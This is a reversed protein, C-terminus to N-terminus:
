AETAMQSINPFEHFPPTFGEAHIVRLVGGRESGRPWSSFPRRRTVCRIVDIADARLSLDVLMAQHSDRVASESKDPQGYLLVGAKHIEKGGRMLRKISFGHVYHYGEFSRCDIPGFIDFELQTIEKSKFRHSGPGYRQGEVVKPPPQGSPRQPIPPRRMRVSDCIDCGATVFAKAESVKLDETANPGLMNQVGDYTPPNLAIVAQKVAERTVDSLPACAQPLWTQWDEKGKVPNLRAVKLSKRLVSQSNLSLSGQDIGSGALM